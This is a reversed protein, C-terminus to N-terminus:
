EQALCEILKYRLGALRNGRGSSYELEVNEMEQQLNYQIRHMPIGFDDNSINLQSLTQLLDPDKAAAELEDRDLTKRKRKKPKSDKDTENM